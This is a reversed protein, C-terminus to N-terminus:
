VRADVTSLGWFSLLLLLCSSLAKCCVAGLNAVSSQRSPRKQLISTTLFFHRFAGFFLVKCWALLFNRLSVLSYVGFARCPTLSNHMALICLDAASSATNHPRVSMSRTDFTLSDAM